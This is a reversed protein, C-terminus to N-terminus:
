KPNRHIKQFFQRAWNIFTKKQQCEFGNVSLTYLILLQPDWGSRTTQCSRWDRRLNDFSTFINNQHLSYVDQYFFCSYGYFFNIIFSRFFKTWMTLLLASKRALVKPWIPEGRLSNLLSKRGRPFFLYVM